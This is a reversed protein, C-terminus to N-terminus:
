FSFAPGSVFAQLSSSSPILFLPRTAFAGDTVFILLLSKFCLLRPFRFSLGRCSLAAQLSSCPDLVFLSTWFRFSSAFFVPSDFLSTQVRCRFLLSKFRLLRSLPRACYRSLPRARLFFLALIQSSSPPPISFRPRTAFTGDTVCVLLLSKFPLLRPLSFLPRSVFTGGAVFLLSRFRFSLDLFSLTHKRWAHTTSM